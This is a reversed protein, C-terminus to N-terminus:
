AHLAAINDTLRTAKDDNVEITPEQMLLICDVCVLCFQM